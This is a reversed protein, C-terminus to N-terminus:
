GNGVQYYPTDEMLIAVETTESIHHTLLSIGKLCRLVPNYIEPTPVWAWM